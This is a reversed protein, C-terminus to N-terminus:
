NAKAELALAVILMIEPATAYGLVWEKYSVMMDPSPNESVRRVGCIIKCLEDHHIAVGRLMRVAMGMCEDSDDVTIPDPISCPGYVTAMEGCKLCKRRYAIFGLASTPKSFGHVWAKKPVTLVALRTGIEKCGEPTTLDYKTM